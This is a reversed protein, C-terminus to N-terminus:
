RDRGRHRLELELNDNSGDRNEDGNAENHKENYSVLDHITFGDHCTIFNISNSPLRKERGYLDSSGTLRTAVEGIIGKEGRVFRRIVDRYMGNWEAWRYGPFGGVQYLGAADWAEAIIKTRALHRLVRHAM